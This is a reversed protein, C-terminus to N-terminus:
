AWKVAGEILKVREPLCDKEKDLAKAVTELDVLQALTTEPKPCFIVYLAM